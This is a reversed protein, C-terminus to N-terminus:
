LTDVKMQMEVTQLADSTRRKEESPKGFEYLVRLPKSECIWTM